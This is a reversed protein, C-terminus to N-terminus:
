ILGTLMWWPIAILVNVIFIVLTVPLGLKAADMDNYYGGEEGVGVLVNMSHMPLIWHGLIAIYCLLSGVLPDWGASAAFKIMTPATIGLVALVSGLVMHVGVAVATVLAAFVFPNAPAIEPLVLQAVWDNMGTYAGVKGIGMAALLFFLTQLPVGSWSTPKLVGGIRPLSLGVAALAAIWGPDIGHVADTAWFLVALGVWFITKKEQDSMPGLEAQEKRLVEKDVHFPVSPKFLLLQVLCTLAACALGPVSMYKLWALWSLTQGDITAAVVNVVSDGTLFPMSTSASGAFVALGINAADKLPLNAAKILGAFISMILFSRPFPHPILLSLLLGVVYASIIVSQYSSVFRVMFAYSIRRGLGSQQVATAILFGGIVLYVLPSTWMSFVVETPAVDLLVWLTLMLFATYGPQVVGLAWWVVGFLSIALCKKGEPSLGELPMAMVILAVIVGLIAGIERKYTSFFSKKQPEKQAQQEHKSSAATAM